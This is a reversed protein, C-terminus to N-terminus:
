QSYFENFNLRLLYDDLHPQYGRAVLKTIVTCLQNYYTCLHGATRGKLLLSLAERFKAHIECMKEYNAVADVRAFDTFLLVNSLIGVIIKM